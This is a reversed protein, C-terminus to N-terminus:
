LAHKRKFEAMLDVPQKKKNSKNLVYVVTKGSPGAGIQTFRYPAEGVAIFSKLDAWTNFVYIRGEKIVEGYFGESIPEARGDYLEIGGIGSRMKKDQKRLGFVVTEGNPGTGIRTLRYATEGVKLFSQYTAFDDFVYIRGEQYVQYYDDVNYAPAVAKEAPKAAKVQEVKQTCATLSLAILASISIKSIFPHIM